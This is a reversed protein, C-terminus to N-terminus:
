KFLSRKEESLEDYRYIIEKKHCKLEIFRRLQNEHIVCIIARSLCDWFVPISYSDTIHTADQILSSTTEPHPAIVVIPKPFKRLLYRFYDFTEIDDLSDKFKGFSYGIVVFCSIDPFLRETILYEKRVTINKPEPQPLLLSPIRYTRLKTYLLLDELHQNYKTSHILDYPISGHPELVYHCKCIKKAVGDTNMNFIFKPTSGYNLIEYNHCYGLSAPVMQKLISATIFASPISNLLEDQISYPANNLPGVIREGIEDRPLSVVDYSGHKLFRDKIQSSFEPTFPVLGASAGAGLLFFSKQKALSSLLPELGNKLLVSDKNSM